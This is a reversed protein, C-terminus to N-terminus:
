EEASSDKVMLIAYESGYVLTTVYNVPQRRWGKLYAEELSKVSFWMYRM